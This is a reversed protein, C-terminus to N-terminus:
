IEKFILQGKLSEEYKSGKKSLKGTSLFLVPLRLSQGKSYALSLDSDSISKKDKAVIMYQLRGIDSGLSANFFLDKGKIEENVISINNKKAFEEVKGKFALISQNAKVLKQKPMLSTLQKTEKRESVKMEKVPEKKAKPAHSGMLANIKEIAQERPLSYFRWFIKEENNLTAKLPKAFDGIERIAVKDAYGLKDDELVSKKKILEFVNREKSVLRDTFKELAAEQGPMLYLPSAGIKIHSVILYKEKVMESLIVSTIFLNQGIAGSVDSPIVPGKEKIIALIKEKREDMNKQREEGNIM